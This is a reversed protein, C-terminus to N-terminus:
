GPQLVRRFVPKITHLQWCVFMFLLSCALGGYFLLSFLDTSVAYIIKFQLHFFHLVDLTLCCCFHLSLFCDNIKEGRVPHPPSASNPMVLCRNSHRWPWDTKIKWAIDKMWLWYALKPQNSIVPSGDSYSTRYSSSRDVWVRPLHISRNSDRSPIPM